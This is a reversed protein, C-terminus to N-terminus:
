PAVVCELAEQVKEFAAQEQIDLQTTQRIGRWLGCLTPRMNDWAEFAAQTLTVAETWRGTHAYGVIFPALEVVNNRSIRWEEGLAQDGLEAVREWDGVQRALEARQFYYCWDHEPEPDFFSAPPRAAPDAGPLILDPDSFPLAELFYRPKGPMYRDDVPDLVKLCAPPQYFIAIAQSASGNFPTIRHIEEIDPNEELDPLGRSLRSELNYLLYFLERSSNEPAYTWNLPATLSNDTDFLFPMDTMLLATGPQIGPARWALQWFFDKQMLWERRYSLAVQFHLGAALGVAIGVILASQLRTRTLLDILGVSLLSTGLMMPLTFRDWPFSLEIRLNTMWILSGGVLLAYVGLLIAELAWPQRSDLPIDTYARHNARLYLLFVLSLVATGLVILAYKLITVPEYAFIGALDLVRKWALVSVELIDQLVTGGLELGTALPDSALRAFITITGRPTPTQLRWALFFLMLVVYPTWYLGLRRSRERLDLPSESLVLWLLVPRLLELGFFYEVAFMVYGSLALSALYLSWFWGSSRLAKLMLGLSLLFLAKFIFGNGYTIAIYGQTFGPYIAFLFAVATVQFIYRPWLMRLMWWLALCCLWRALLGFIQWNLPSEGLLSTTLVYMGGLLPRDVLFAERFSSPGLFHIYYAITWDDWYLGLKSVLAGFSLVCLFLLAVPVAWPRFQVRLSRLM